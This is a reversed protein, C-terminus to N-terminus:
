QTSIKLNNERLSLLVYDTYKLKLTHNCLKGCAAFRFTIKQGSRVNVSYHYDDAIALGINSLMDECKACLSL